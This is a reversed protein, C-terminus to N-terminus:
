ICFFLYIIPEFQLGLKIQDGNLDFYQPNLLECKVEVWDSMDLRFDKGYIWDLGLIMVQIHSRAPDLDLM